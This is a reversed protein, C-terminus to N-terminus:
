INDCYMYNTYPETKVCFDCRREIKDINSRLIEDCMAEHKKQSRKNFEVLDQYKKLEATKVKAVCEPSCLLNYRWAYRVGNKGCQFCRRCLCFQM